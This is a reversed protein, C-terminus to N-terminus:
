VWFKKEHILVNLLFPLRGKFFRFNRFKKEQENKFKSRNGASKQKAM